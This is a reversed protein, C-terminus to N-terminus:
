ISLIKSIHPQKIKEREEDTIRKIKCNLSKFQEKSITKAANKRLNRVKQRLSSIKINLAKIIQDQTKGAAARLIFNCNQQLNRDEKCLPLNFKLHM